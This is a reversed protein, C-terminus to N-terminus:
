GAARDRSRFAITQPGQAGAGAHAPADTSAIDDDYSRRPPFRDLEMNYRGPPDAPPGGAAFGWWRGSERSWALRGRTAYWFDTFRAWRARWRSPLSLFM